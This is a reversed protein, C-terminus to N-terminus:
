GEREEDSNTPQQQSSTTNPTFRNKWSNKNRQLFIPTAAAGSKNDHGDERSESDIFKEVYGEDRSGGSTSESETDLLEIMM